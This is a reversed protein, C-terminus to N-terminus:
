DAKVYLNIRSGRKLTGIKLMLYIYHSRVTNQNMGLHEAIEKAKRPSSCFNLIEEMIVARDKETM